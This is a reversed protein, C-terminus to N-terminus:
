AAPLPDFEVAVRYGTSSAECRVVRGLANWGSFPTQGAVSVGIHEGSALPVDSLASMGGVSLDRIALNVKPQRYAALSHDLRRGFASANVRRRVFLRREDHRLEFAERAPRVPAEQVLAVM